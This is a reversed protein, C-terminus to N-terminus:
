AFLNEGNVFYAVEGATLNNMSIGVIGSSVKTSWENLSTKLGTWDNKTLSWEEHFNHYSLSQPGLSLEINAIAAASIDINVLGAVIEVICGVAAMVDLFVGGAMMIDIMEVGTITLENIGGISATLEEVSGLALTREVINLARIEEFFLSDARLYEYLNAANMYEYLDGSALSSPDIEQGWDNIHRTSIVELLRDAYIKDVLLTEARMVDTINKGLVLEALDGAVLSSPNAGGYNATEWGAQDAHATSIVELLSGGYMKDVLLTKGAMIEVLNTANTYEYFDWRKSKADAYKTRPEAFDNSGPQYTTSIVEYFWNTYEHSTIETEENPDTAPQDWNPDSDEWRQNSLVIHKYQGGIVEVVDQRTTVIRNGDTHDRV